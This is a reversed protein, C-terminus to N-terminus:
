AEGLAREVHRGRTVAGLGQLGGDRPVQQRASERAEPVEAGSQLVLFFGVRNVFLKHTKYVCDNM